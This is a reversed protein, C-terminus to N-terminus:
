GEHLNSEIEVMILSDVGGYQNASNYGNAPDTKWEDDVLLKYRHLGKGIPIIKRWLGKEADVLHLPEAVWRNFDGAIMVSRVAQNLYSFLFGGLVARPKLEEPDMAPVQIQEIQITAITSAPHTEVAAQTQVTPSQTSDIHIAEQKDNGSTVSNETEDQHSKGDSVSAGDVKPSVKSGGSAWILGREIVEIALGMYNRFGSSERDFAVISQGAAAAEKLRINEDIINIFIQDHFYKRVEEKIERGLRSRDEWRTLLAHIRLEKGFEKKFSDITEFIKALGHLSFFSPEIPIIVEEAAYLANFTLFGLNPPCDIIVYEYRDSIADLQRALCSHPVTECVFEREVRGLKITSPIMDLHDNVFVGLDAASIEQSQFLDYSTYPLFEAKIGLGCACHGQPDLDMLLVKKRLFALSASLNIATTTKGCGGKQNAIAVIRM